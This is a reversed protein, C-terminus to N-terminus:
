HPALPPTSSSSRRSWRWCSSGASACCTTTSAPITTASPRPRMPSTSSSRDAAARRSTSSCCGTGRTSCTARIRSATCCSSPPAGTSSRAGGAECRARGAAEPGRRRAGAHPRPEGVLRQAEAVRDTFHPAPMDVARMGAHLRELARRLRRALSAHPEAPAYYTWLTVAFGDRVYVRPEVRPELAEVPSGAAALRRAVEVEFRAVSSRSPPWGPLCTVRCCACPSATRTTCCSGDGAALGLSSATAMAAAMARAAESAQMTAQGGRRHASGYAGLPAVQAAYWTTSLSIRQLAVPPTRRFLRRDARVGAAWGIVTLFAFLEPRPVLM